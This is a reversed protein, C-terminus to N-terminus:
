MTENGDSCTCILSIADIWWQHNIIKKLVNRYQMLKCFFFLIRINASPERELNVILLHVLSTM